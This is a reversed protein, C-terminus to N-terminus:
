DALTRNDKLHRGAFILIQQDPPIGEEDQIKRKINDTNDSSEYFIVLTSGTFTNIYIYNPPKKVLRVSIDNYKLLIVVINEM